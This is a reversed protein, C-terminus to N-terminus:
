DLGDLREMGTPKRPSNNKQTPSADLGEEQEQPSSAGDTLDPKTDSREEGTLESLTQQVLDYIARAKRVQAPKESYKTKRSILKWPV